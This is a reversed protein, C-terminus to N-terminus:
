WEWSKLEFDFNNEITLKDDKNKNMDKFLKDWNNRSKCPIPYLIIKGNEVELNVKNQIHCHNLINKPFRIGKSNGIKIIKLKM